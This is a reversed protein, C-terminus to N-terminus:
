PNAVDTKKFPPFTEEKKRKLSAMTDNLFAEVVGIVAALIASIAIVKQTGTYDNWNTGNLVAVLTAFLTTLAKCACKFIALKWFMIQETFDKM